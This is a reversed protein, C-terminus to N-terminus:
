TQAPSSAIATIPMTNMNVYLAKRSGGRSSWGFRGSSEGSYVNTADTRVTAMSTTGGSLSGSVDDPSAQWETVDEFDEIVLPEDAFTGTIQLDDFFISQMGGRM